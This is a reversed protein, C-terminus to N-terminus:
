VAALCARYTVLCTVSFVHSSLDRHGGFCSARRFGALDNRFNNSTHNAIPRAFNAGKACHGVCIGVDVVAQHPTGSHVLHIYSERKCSTEPSCECADIVEIIRVGQLTSVRELKAARARCHYNSSCKQFRVFTDTLLKELPFFYVPSAVSRTSVQQDASIANFSAPV